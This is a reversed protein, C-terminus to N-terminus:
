ELAGSPEPGPRPRSTGWPSVEDLRGICLDADTRLRDNAEASRLGNRSVLETDFVVRSFGARRVGALEDNSADGVFVAERLPTEGRRPVLARYAEASQGTAWNV